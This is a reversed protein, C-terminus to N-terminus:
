KLVEDLHKCHGRFQFGTCTCSKEDPDVEYVNGKSGMVKIVNSVVPKVNFPNPKVEVFVRKNRDVTIPKKFYQPAKTGKPIYAVAKSGEFLYTHNPQVASDWKTIEKMAIM